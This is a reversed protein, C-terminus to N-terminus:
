NQLQQRGLMQNLHPDGGITILLDYFPRMGILVSGKSKCNMQGLCNTRIQMCVETLIKIYSGPLDRSRLDAPSLQVRVDDYM